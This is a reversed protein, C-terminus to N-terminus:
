PASPPWPELSAGTNYVLRNVITLWHNERDHFTDRLYDLMSEQAKLFEVGLNLLRFGVSRIYGEIFPRNHKIWMKWREITKACPYDESELDDQTVVEDVVGEIVEVEYHKYPSLNIPLENHLRRCKKCFLRRIQGWLKVGGEQRIHRQRTDRYKMPSQCEPCVPFDDGRCKWEGLQNFDAECNSVICMACVVLDNRHLDAM